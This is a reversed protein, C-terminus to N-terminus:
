RAGSAGSEDCGGGGGGEMRKVHLPCSLMSPSLNIKERVGSAHFCVGARM